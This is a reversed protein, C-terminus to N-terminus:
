MKRPMVVAGARPMQDPPIQGPPGRMVRPGAAAGGPMPPAPGGGAQGAGPPPGGPGAGPMGGGPGAQGQMQQQRMMAAAKMQMSMQHRQIHMRAQAAAEPGSSQLLPMHAQIHKPDEDLPHVMVEFGDRLMGNETQPDMALQSKMDKILLRGMRWGFVNGASQILLAAPDLMYGAKNLIQEYGKYINLAAIQQQMQAANRAQEVGFWTFHYRTASQMPKVTQLTALSGLEGYQKITVEDDRFQHDYDAWMTVVPTLVGEEVVSSAEDTTLVDVTQEMAIEAQNRKAGPRGTQQPLMAPNVGMNQFIQATCSGIIQIADQWLKPFEAFRTSNPDCEWIVGMHLIMTSTRPNKAPDTMIIPVMSRTASDAGQQAIQNAYYQLSAVGPKIPSIGKFAGSVKQQPVSILQCKDNWMPNRRCSLILDYGAYLSKTLRRGEGPIDRVCWTEYGQFSNGKETIGAADILSKEISAPNELVRGQLELLEETPGRRVEGRDLMDELQEKTWRRIITVSGGDRLAAEVSGATQPLVLVDSDHLVEVEPRQDFMEREEIGEVPEDEIDLADIPRMMQPLKVTPQRTERSVVWRSDRNWDVYLNYHGEVDGNRLLAAIHRTRLHTQRVYDELLAAIENPISGDSSTVDIYRGSMPFLRNLIRTKRAEVAAHVIPVYLDSEGNYYNNGDIECNYIAWYDQIEDARRGQQQFGTQIKRFMKVMDEYATSKRRGLLERDRRREEDAM